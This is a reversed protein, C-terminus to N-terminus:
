VSVLIVFLIVVVFAAMVGIFAGIIFPKVVALWFKEGFEM